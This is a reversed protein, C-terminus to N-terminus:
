FKDSSWTVFTPFFSEQKSRNSGARLNTGSSRQERPHSALETTIVVTLSEWKVHPAAASHVAAPKLITTSPVHVVGSRTGLAISQSQLFVRSQKEKQGGGSRRKVVRSRGVYLLLLFTGGSWREEKGGTIGDIYIKRGIKSEASGQINTPCPM